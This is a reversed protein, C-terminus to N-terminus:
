KTESPNAGRPANGDVIKLLAVFQDAFDPALASCFCRVPACSYVSSPYVTSTYLEESNFSM